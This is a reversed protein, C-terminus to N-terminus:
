HKASYESNRNYTYQLEGTVSSQIYLHFYYSKGAPTLACHCRLGANRCVAPLYDTVCVSFRGCLKVSINPNTKTETEVTLFYLVRLLFAPSKCIQGNQIM